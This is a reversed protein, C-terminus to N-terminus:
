FKSFNINELFIKRFFKIIVCEWDRSKDVMITSKIKIYYIRM